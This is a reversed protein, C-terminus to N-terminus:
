GGKVELKLLRHMQYAVDSSMDFLDTSREIEAYLQEILLHEILKKLTLLEDSLMNFVDAKEMQEYIANKLKTM